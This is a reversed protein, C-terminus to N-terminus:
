LVADAIAAVGPLVLSSLAVLAVVARVDIHRRRGM